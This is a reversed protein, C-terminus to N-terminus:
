PSGAEAHRLGSSHFQQIGRMFRRTPPSSAPSKPSMMPAEQATGEAPTASADAIEEASAAPATM